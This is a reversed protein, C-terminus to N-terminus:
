KRLRLAINEILLLGWVGGRRAFKERGSGLFLFGEHDEKVSGRINTQIVALAELDNANMEKCIDQLKGPNWNRINVMGIKANGHEGGM